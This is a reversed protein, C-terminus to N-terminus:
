YRCVLIRLFKRWAVDGVSHNQSRCARASLLSVLVLVVVVVVVVVVMVVSHGRWWVMM